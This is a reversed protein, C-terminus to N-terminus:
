ITVYNSLNDSPALYVGSEDRWVLSGYWPTYEGVKSADCWAYLDPATAQRLAYEKGNIYM